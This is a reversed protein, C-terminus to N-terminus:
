GPEGGSAEEGLSTAIYWHNGFPDKVGASREGYSMDEPEYLSVAGAALARSYCADTDRVYLHIACPMPPYDDRGDSCELRSDGLQLEAHRILGNDGATRDIEEAEFVLKLFDILQAAGKVLLYPTVAHYGDPKYANAM